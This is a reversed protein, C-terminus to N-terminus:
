LLFLSQISFHGIFLKWCFVKLRKQLFKLCFSTPLKKYIVLGFTLATTIKVTIWWSCCGDLYNCPKQSLPTPDNQTQKQFHVSQIAFIACALLTSKSLYFELWFKQRLHDFITKCLEVSSHGKSNGCLQVSDSCLSWEFNSEGKFKGDNGCARYGKVPCSTSVRMSCCNTEKRHYILVLNYLSKSPYELNNCTVSEPFAWHGIISLCVFKRLLMGDMKWFADWM